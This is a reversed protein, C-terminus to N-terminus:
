HHDTKDIRCTGSHCDNKRKPLYPRLRAFGKYCLRAVPHIVPLTILTGMLGFFTSTPFAQWIAWFAEVGRYVRGGRDIVHLEYMFEDLTIDYPTPDFNSASIDVPILRRNQDRRVYHEIERSCVSCAGDYFVRLPFDPQTPM